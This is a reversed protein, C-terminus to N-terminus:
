MMVISLFFDQLFYALLINYVANTIYAFIYMYDQRIFIDMTALLLGKVIMCVAVIIVFPIQNAWLISALASIIGYVVNDPTPLFPPYKMQMPPTLQWSVISLFGTLVPMVLFGFIFGGIPGEIMGVLIMPIFILDIGIYSNIKIFSTFIVKDIWIMVYIIGYGLGGLKSFIWFGAILSILAEILWRTNM